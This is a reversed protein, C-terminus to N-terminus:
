KKIKKILFEAFQFDLETDIDMARSDPILVTKIRGDFISNNNLIFDPTSIYAVTTMDFIAPADQRRSIKKKLPMALSAYGNENLTIMNFSPHHEAKQCTVVFDTDHNLFTEICTNIDEVSKLPSTAPLSVFINFKDGEQKGSIETIAHQWALWEPSNDQALNAPRLFPIEAGHELAIDAIKQCDTSVIVRDIYKCNKAVAISHAILPKGGLMRINKGPVGKSGARAFIFAYIKNRMQSDM